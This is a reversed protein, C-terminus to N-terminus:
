QGPEITLPTTEVLSWTKKAVEIFGFSASIICFEHTAVILLITQGVSAANDPWPM